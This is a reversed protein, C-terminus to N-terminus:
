SQLSTFAAGKRDQTASRGRKTAIFAYRAHTLGNVLANFYYKFGSSTNVRKIQLPLGAQRFFEKYDSVTYFRENVGTAVLKAVMKARSKLKVLPWVPERIAVFQGGPKLLRKVERLVQVINVADHLVASCVVFDFYNNPFDLKHFDGPMRTIKAANANLLKFVKPAQERLLRPSFDIATIEVVKPLKSLEASLWAGGAGIELLRGRFELGCKRTLFPIFRPLDEQMSRLWKAEGGSIEARRAALERLAVTREHAYPSLYAKKEIYKSEITSV